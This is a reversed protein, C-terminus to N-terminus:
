PCNRSWAWEGAEERRDGIYRRKKDFEGGGVGAVITLCFLDPARSNSLRDMRTPSELDEEAVNKHSLGKVRTFTIMHGQAQPFLNLPAGRFVKESLSLLFSNNKDAHM